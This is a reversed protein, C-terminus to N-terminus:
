GRGVRLLGAPQSRSLQTAMTGTVLPLPRQRGVLEANSPGQPRPCLGAPVCVAKRQGSRGDMTEGHGGPGQYSANVRLGRQFFFPPMVDGESSVVGLVMVTSPFKTHMVRPVEDPSKCLWRDNRRNVKQDQDFNKEDSFFKLMKAEEPHKLRILLKKAKELRKQKTADNMFHGTKLAYSGYRLDEHVTRHITANAVGLERALSRISKSPDQDVKQQVRAVFEPTRVNDSRPAPKSRKTNIDEPHESAELRSKMKYVFSLSLKNFEAIAKPSRGAHLGALVAGRKIEETMTVNVANNDM